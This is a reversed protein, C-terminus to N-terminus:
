FPYINRSLEILQLAYRNEMEERYATGKRILYAPHQWDTAPLEISHVQGLSGLTKYGTPAHNEAFKGIRVIHQPNCLSMFEQLRPACATIEDQEPNRNGPPRCSLINTIAWRFPVLPKAKLGKKHARTKFGLDRKRHEIAKNIIRDLVQGSRGVFPSGTLDENEGPAEGIFLIDCPVVGRYFVHNTAKHGLSCRTCGEWRKVHKAIKPSQPM